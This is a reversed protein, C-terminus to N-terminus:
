SDWYPLKPCLKMICVMPSPSFMFFCTFVILSWLCSVQSINCFMDMEGVDMDCDCLTIWVGINEGDGGGEM